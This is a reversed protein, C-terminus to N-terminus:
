IEKDFSQLKLVCIQSKSYTVKESKRGLLLSLRHVSLTFTVEAYIVEPSEIYFDWLEEKELEPSFDEGPSPYNFEQLDKLSLSQCLGTEEEWACTLPQSFSFYNSNVHHSKTSRHALVTFGYNSPKIEFSMPGLFSERLVEAFLAEAEPSNKQTLDMDMYCDTEYVPNIEALRRLDTSSIMPTESILNKLVQDDRLTQARLNLSYFLTILFITTKMHKSKHCDVAM